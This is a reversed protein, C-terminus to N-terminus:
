WWYTVSYEECRDSAFFLLTVRDKDIHASIVEVKEPRKVTLSKKGDFSNITLFCEGKKCSFVIQQKLLFYEECIGRLYPEDIPDTIGITNISYTKESIFDILDIRNKM